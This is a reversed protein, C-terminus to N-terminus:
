DESKILTLRPKCEVIESLESHRKRIEATAEVIGTELKSLFLGLDKDTLAEVENIIEDIVTIKRKPM